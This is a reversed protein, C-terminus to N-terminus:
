TIAREMLVGNAAILSLCTILYVATCSPIGVTQRNFYTDLLFKSYMLIVDSLLNGHCLVIVSATM